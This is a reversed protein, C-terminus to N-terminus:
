ARGAQVVKFEWEPNDAANAAILAEAKEASEFRAAHITLNNLAGKSTLFAFRKKGKERCKVYHIAM